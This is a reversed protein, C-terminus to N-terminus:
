ALVAPDRSLTAVAEAVLPADPDLALAEELAARGSVSLLREHKAMAVLALVSARDRPPVDDGLSGSCLRTVDATRGQRLRALALTPRVRAPAIRKDKSGGPPLHDVLWEARSAALGAIEAPLPGTCLVKTTLVDVIHLVDPEPKDPLKWEQQYVPLLREPEHSLERLCDIAEPVDLRFGEILTDAAGPQHLWDPSALLARVETAARASVRLRALRTGDSQSDATFDGDPVLDRLASTLVCIAMYATEWHPAPLLLCAGGVLLNATPGALLVAARPRAQLRDSSLHVHGGLGPGVAVLVGRVHFKLLRGGFQIETVPSGVLRAALAHGLEHVVTGAIFAALLLAAFGLETGVGVHAPQYRELLERGGLLCAALILANALRGLTRRM